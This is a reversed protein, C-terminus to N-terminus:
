TIFIAASVLHSYQAAAEGSLSFPRKASRVCTARHKPHLALKEDRFSESCDRKSREKPRKRCRKYVQNLNKIMHQWM